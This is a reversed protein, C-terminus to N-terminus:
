LDSLWGQDEDKGAVLEFRAQGGLPGIQQGAAYAELSQQTQIDIPQKRYTRCSFRQQIIESVPQTFPLSNKM